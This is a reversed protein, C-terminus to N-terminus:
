KARTEKTREANLHMPVGDDDFEAWEFYGCGKGDAVKTKQEEQKGRGGLEGNEAGIMDGPEGVRGPTQCMWVYKGLTEKRRMVSKLVCPVGCRCKPTYKPSFEERYWRYTINVRKNGSIPHPTIGGTASSAPAISHKWTEQMEAHMVLLSNHPLPLSIQGQADAYEEKLKKAEVSDPDLGEVDPPPVIRRIRFERQVGLSLSGIVPHPGLYSLQDTHYGVNQQAGSYCNVFAANPLWPGPPQHRLKVGGPYTKIRKAIEANVAQEVLTSVRRMVPLIERVDSLTSGNYLYNSKQAAADALSNVYFSATHPSKVVNDFLRFTASTFSNTEPLLEHLLDNALTPPLFNHIISCPTNAAITAPSYLYLTKGKKTLPRNIAPTTTDDLSHSSPRTTTFKLSSQIGSTARNRRSPSHVSHSSSTSELLAHITREVFGDHNLLAELLDEQPVQEFISALIALKEDTSGEEDQADNSSSASLKHRPEDMTSVKRRKRSVFADM